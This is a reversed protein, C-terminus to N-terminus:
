KALYTSSHETTTQVHPLSMPRTRSVGHPHDLGPGLAAFAQLALEKLDVTGQTATWTQLAVEFATLAVAATLHHVMVSEVEINARTALADVVRRVWSEQQDLYRARIAPTARILRVLALANAPEVGVANPIELLANRIATLPPEDAPRQALLAALTDGFDARYALIVDEKSGFYRFFTRRSVNARAAIANVTVNDFGSTKFLDLAAEKLAERTQLKKHERTSASESQM